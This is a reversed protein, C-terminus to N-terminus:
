SERIRRFVKQVVPVDEGGSLWLNDAIDMAPKEFGARVDALGISEARGADGLAFEKHFIRSLVTAPLIGLEVLLDDVIRHEVAQRPLDVLLRRLLATFPGITNPRRSSTLAKHRTRDPRQGHRERVRRVGIIRAEPHDGEILNSGSVLM